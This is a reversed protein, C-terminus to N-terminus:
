ASTWLEAEGAVKQKSLVCGHQVAASAAVVLEEPWTFVPMGARGYIGMAEPALAPSGLRAVLFPVGPHSHLEVLDTAMAAAGPDANTSLQVLVLDVAGSRRLVDVVDRVLHPREVGVATVDVPNTVASFEPLVGLLAQQVKVDLTPVELGAAVCRDALLSCAGGSMSVIGVRQGTVPGLTMVGKAAVFLDPLGDVRIIGHRRFFADYSSDVGTMAGTHSAAAKRGAESRGTKVAILPKGADHARAVAAAFAAPRRIGEIFLCIIECSSDDALHAVFDEIGLDAENGVSIWHSLGVGFDATRSFLSSAIAGSQSVLAVPGSLLGDRELAMGFTAFLKRSPAAIGITNPGIIRVNGATDVLQSQAEAGPPGAEAFGSSYVIAYSVGASACERVVAAVASAPVAICALDVPRRVDAVSPVSTVDDADMAKPNVVLIEGGFDGQRLYRLIRGGVKREDSSGGVVVVRRPAFLRHLDPFEVDEEEPAAPELVCVADAVFAGRENVFVPNMDLEAIEPIATAVEGVVILLRALAESDVRARGRYGGLVRAVRLQAILDMAEDLAVPAMALARDQTVEILEGGAAVMLIVGLPDLRVGVAMEVGTLQQQVSLEAEPLGM